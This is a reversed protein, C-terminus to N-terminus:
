RSHLAYFLNVPLKDRQIKADLSQSSEPRKRLFCFFGLSIVPDASDM